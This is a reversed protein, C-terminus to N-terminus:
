VNTPATAHPSDEANDQEDGDAKLQDVVVKPLEYWENRVELVAEIVSTVDAPRWEYIIDEVSVPATEKRSEYYVIIAAVALLIYDQTTADAPATIIDNGEKDKGFKPVFVQVSKGTISEFGTETAACYALSIEKGEINITKTKM